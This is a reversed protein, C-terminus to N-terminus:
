RRVPAKYDAFPISTRTDVVVHKRAILYEGRVERVTVECLVSSVPVPRGDAVTTVFMYAELDVEDARIATTYANAVNHRLPYPSEMRHERTWALAAARGRADCRISAELPHNGTDSRGTFVVDDTVLRELADLRGEDYNVYWRHFADVARFADIMAVEQRQPM